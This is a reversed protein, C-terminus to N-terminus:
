RWWEVGSCAKWFHAGAKEPKEIVVADAAGLIVSSVREQIANIWSTM